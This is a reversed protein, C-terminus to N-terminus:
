QGRRSGKGSGRGSGMGMGMGMSGQGSGDDSTQSGSQGGPAQGGRRQAAGERAASREANSMSGRRERMEQREEETFGGPRSPEAGRGQVGRGQAAARQEDSMGELRDRRAQRQEETLPGQADPGGFGPRQPPPNADGESDEACVGGAVLLGVATLALIKRPKMISDSRLGPISILSVLAEAFRKTSTLRLNM